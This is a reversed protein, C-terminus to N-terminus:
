SRALAKRLMKALSAPTAREVAVEECGNFRAFAVLKDGLEDRFEASPEVGAELKFNKVVLRGRKREAKADLQAAFEDGWLVPLAFYGFRRKAAPVYCELAFDVGFLRKVRERQVVANDFPSLIHLRRRRGARWALAAPSAFYEEEPLEKIRAPAVEGEVTLAALAADVAARDFSTIHGYIERRTMVGHAGLARRVAFRGLEDADPVSTDVGPPLVREPLDYVRQFNRREAVMLRGQWMLLELAVKAPKWDWWGGSKRGEPAKFDAARLAGEKEVRALVSAMVDEHRDRLRAMWGVGWPFARMRPIYYRYDAMPLFSAGHGWYEFLRKDRGHLEDLAAAEYGPRRAWLTHHHAREVVALTDIQVYGLHDVARAVGEKGAPLGRPGDLLQSRLAIRRARALSITVRKPQPM